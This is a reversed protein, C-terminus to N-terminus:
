FQIRAEILTGLITDQSYDIKLLNANGSELDQKVFDGDIDTLYRNFLIKQGKDKRIIIFDRDNPKRGFEFILLAHEPFIPQLVFQKSVVLGFSHRALKKDLLIEQVRGGEKPVNPWLALMEWQIIPVTSLNLNEKIPDPITNPLPADGVLQEITINFYRAVVDLLKKRPKKTSGSLVHYLTPQPLGTFHALDSVSLNGYVRMLQQLNEQLIM